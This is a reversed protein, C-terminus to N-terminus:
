SSNGHFETQEKPGGDQTHKAGGSVSRVLVQVSLHKCSSSRLSCVRMSPPSWASVNNLGEHTLALGMKFGM